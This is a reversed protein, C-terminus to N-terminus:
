PCLWSGMSPGGAVQYKSFAGRRSRGRARPATANQGRPSLGAAGVDAAPGSSVGRPSRPQAALPTVRGSGADCPSVGARGRAPARAGTGGRGAGSLPGRAPPGSLRPNASPLSLRGPLSAGRSSGVQGNPEPPVGLSVCKRRPPAGPRRPSARGAWKRGPSRSPGVAWPTLKKNNINLAQSM